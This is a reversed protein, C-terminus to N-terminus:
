FVNTGITTRTNLYTAPIRIGAELLTKDVAQRPNRVAKKIDRLSIRQSVSM